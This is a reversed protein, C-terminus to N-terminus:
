DLGLALDRGTEVEPMRPAAERLPVEIECSFGNTDFNARANAFTASL